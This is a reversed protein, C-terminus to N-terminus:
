EYALEINNEKFYAVYEPPPMRNTCVVSFETAGCFRLPAPAGFKTEDLVLYRNETLALARKKLVGESPYTHSVGQKLSFGGCAIFVKTINFNAFLHEEALATFSNNERNLMGPLVYIQLNPYAVARMVVDLNNTVISVNKRDKLFDIMMCTTSGSDIFVFDNDNVFRAAAKAAQLKEPLHLGSRLHFPIVNAAPTNKSVCGYMKNLAGQQCLVAIDRRLTSMSVGFHAELEALPVVGKEGVYEIIAQM